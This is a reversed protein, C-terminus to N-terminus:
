HISCLQLVPICLFTLTMLRICRSLANCYLVLTSVLTTSGSGAPDSITQLKTPDPDLDTILEPYLNPDPDM